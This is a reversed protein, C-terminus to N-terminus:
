VTLDIGDADTKRDEGNVGNGNESGGDCERREPVRKEEKESGGLADISGPKRVGNKFSARQSAPMIHRIVAFIADQSM